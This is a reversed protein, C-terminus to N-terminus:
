GAATKKRKQLTKLDHTNSHKEKKHEEVQQFRFKGSNAERERIKNKGREYDFLTTTVKKKCSSPFSLSWFLTILFALRKIKNVVFSPVSM